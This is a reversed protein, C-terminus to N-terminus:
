QLVGSRIGFSCEETVVRGLRLCRSAQFNPLNRVRVINAQWVVCCCEPDVDDVYIQQFIVAFAQILPEDSSRVIFSSSIAGVFDLQKVVLM